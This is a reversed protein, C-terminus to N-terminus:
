LTKRLRPGVEEFGEGLYFGLTRSWAPQPPAGVELRTWGRDTAHHQAAAILQSAVGKSRYAPMVYLESIEGFVGGAYIAACENLLILGVPESGCFALIGFVHDMALVKRTVAELTEQDPGKGASLENLLRYVFESVVGLDTADAPRIMLPFDSM